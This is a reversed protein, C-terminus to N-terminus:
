QGGQQWIHFVRTRTSPTAKKKKKAQSLKGRKRTFVQRRKTPQRNKQPKKAQSQASKGKRRIAGERKELNWTGNEKGM